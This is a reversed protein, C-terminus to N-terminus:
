IPAISDIHRPHVNLVSVTICPICPLYRRGTNGRPANIQRNFQKVILHLKLHMIRRNMIPSLEIYETPMRAETAYSYM